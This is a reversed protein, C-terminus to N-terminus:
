FYYIYKKFKSRVEMKKCYITLKNMCKQLGEKTESFMVIDDAWLMSNIKIDNLEVPRTNDGKLFEPLDNIFVNFLLPRWNDCLILGKTTVIKPLIKNKYTISTSTNSYMDSLIKIHKQGLGLNHLKIM